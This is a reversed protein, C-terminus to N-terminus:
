GPTRSACTIAVRPGGTAEATWWLCAGTPDALLGSEGAPATDPTRILADWVEGDWRSVLAAPGAPSVGRVAILLDDGAWALNVPMAESSLPARGGEPGPAPPLPTWAEGDHLCVTAPGATRSTGSRSRWALALQDDPGAALDLSQPASAAPTCAAPVAIPRWGSPTSQQLVLATADERRVWHAVLAEGDGRIDGALAVTRDPLPLAPVRDQWTDDRYWLRGIEDGDRVLVHAREQTQRMALVRDDPNPETLLSADPGAGPLPTAPAGTTSELAHLAGGRARGDRWSVLMGTPTQHATPHAAHPAPIAPDARWHGEVLRWATLTGARRGAALLAVPAAPTGGLTAHGPRPSPAEGESTAAPAGLAVWHDEWRAARITHGGAIRARWAIIDGHLAPASTGSAPLGSRAMLTGDVLDHVSLAGDQIRAIRLDGRTTVGIHLSDTTGGLVDLRVWARGDWRHLEAGGTPSWAVVPGETTLAVSVPSPWDDASRRGFQARWRAQARRDARTRESVREPGAPWADTMVPATPPSLTTWATGDWLRVALGAAPSGNEGVDGAVQWAVLVRDASDTAVAPAGVPRIRDSDLSTPSGLATWGTPDGVLLAVEAGLRRTLLRRGHSLGDLAPADLSRETLNGVADSRLADPLPVGGAPHVAAAPHGAVAPRLGWPLGAGDLGVWAKVAPDRQADSWATGDWTRAMREWPAADRRHARRQSWAVAARGEGLDRVVLGIPKGGDVGLSPGSMSGLTTPVPDGAGPLPAAEGWTAPGPDCALALLLLPAMM